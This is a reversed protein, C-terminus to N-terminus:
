LTGFFVGVATDYNDRGPKCIVCMLQRLWPDYFYGRLLSANFIHYLHELIIEVSEKYIINPIQDPGPAKHPPLDSIMRQIHERSFEAHYPLPPPYDVNEPIGHDAPPPPFFSDAIIRAKDTNTKVLSISGDPNTVKLTPIRLQAAGEGNPNNIYRGATWLTTDSAEELFNTWHREKAENIADNYKNRYDKLERHSRHAIDDRHRYSENSLRNKAKRMDDLDKNWWRKAYRSPRSKPITADISSHLATLMDSVATTFQDQSTIPTPNPIRGIEQTLSDRYRNWDAARFNRSEAPEHIMVPIELHIDIPLHDLSTPWEEPVTTCRTLVDMASPSCFVNDPRTWNGNRDVRYTPKGQPLAMELNNDNVIGLLV